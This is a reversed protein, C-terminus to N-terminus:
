LSTESYIKNGGLGVVHSSSCQVGEVIDQQSLGKIIILPGESNVIMWQWPTSVCLHPLHPWALKVMCEQQVYRHERHSSITIKEIYKDRKECTPQGSM